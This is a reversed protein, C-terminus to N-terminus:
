MIHPVSTKRPMRAMMKGGMATQTLRPRQEASLRILRARHQLVSNLRRSEYFFGDVHMSVLRVIGPSVPRPKRGPRRWAQYM